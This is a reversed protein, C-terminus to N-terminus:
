RILAVIRTLLQSCLTLRESFKKFTREDIRARPMYLAFSNDNRSDRAHIANVIWNGSVVTLSSHAVKGGESRRLLSLADPAKREQIANALLCERSRLRPVDGTRTRPASLPNRRDDNAKM